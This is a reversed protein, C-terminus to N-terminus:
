PYEQKETTQDKMNQNEVPFTTNAAIQLEHWYGRDFWGTSGNWFYYFQFIGWIPLLIYTWVLFRPIKKGEFSAIKPDGYLELEDHAIKEELAKNSPTEDM